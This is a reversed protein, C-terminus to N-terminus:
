YLKCANQSIEYQIFWLPRMDNKISQKKPNHDFPPWFDAFVNVSQAANNFHLTHIRKM